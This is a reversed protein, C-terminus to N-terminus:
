PRFPQGNFLVEVGGIKGDYQEYIVGAEKFMTKATEISKVWQNYSADMITRHAVVRLIGSEIIGKACECCASWPAYLILGRTSIGKKAAHYIVSTEAHVVFDYKAPRELRAETEEVGEPFRNAGWAFITGWGVLIAGNQTSRDTSYLAGIKYAERLYDKENM